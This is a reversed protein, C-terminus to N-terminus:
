NGSGEPLECSGKAGTGPFTTGEISEVHPMFEGLCLMHMFSFYIKQQQQKEGILTVSYLQPVPM